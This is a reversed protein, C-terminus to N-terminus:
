SSCLVLSFLKEEDEEAGRNDVLFMTIRTTANLIPFYVKEGGHDLQVKVMLDHLVMYDMM